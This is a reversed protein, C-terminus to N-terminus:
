GGLKGLFDVRGSEPAEAGAPCPENDIFIALEIDNRRGVLIRREFLPSLPHHQADIHPFM